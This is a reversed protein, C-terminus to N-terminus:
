PLGGAQNNPKNTQQQDEGALFYDVIDSIFGFNYPAEVSFSQCFPSFLFSYKKRLSCVFLTEFNSPNLPYAM